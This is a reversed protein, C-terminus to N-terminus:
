GDEGMPHPNGKWGDENKEESRNLAQNTVQMNGM